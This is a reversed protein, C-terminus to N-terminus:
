SAGRRKPAIRPAVAFASFPKWPAFRTGSETVTLAAGRSISRVTLCLTNGRYAHLPVSPDHLAAILKRCLALVPAHARVTVGPASCTDDGVIEARIPPLRHATM